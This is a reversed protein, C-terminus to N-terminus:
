QHALWVIIRDINNVSSRAFIALYCPLIQNLIIRFWHPFNPISQSQTQHNEMHHKM